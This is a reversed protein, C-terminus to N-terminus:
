GGPQSAELTYLRAWRPTYRPRLRRLGSGESDALRELADYVEDPTVALHEEDTLLAFVEAGSFSEGPQFWQPLRRAIIAELERADM